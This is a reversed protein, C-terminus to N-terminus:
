MKEVPSIGILALCAAITEASRQAVALRSRRLDGTASLIPNQEYWDHFTSAFQILTHLIPHIAQTHTVLSVKEDLEVITRILSRELLSIEKPHFDVRDIIEAKALVSGARVYAYMVYYLPNHKAQATLLDLDLDFHSNTDRMAFFFRATDSPVQDLFEDLLIYNGRRKSMKLEEGDRLLRVTQTWLPVFGNTGLLHLAAMLRQEQGHHDPGVITIAVDFKRDELKGLQYTIDKLFYTEQNDTSRVLVEDQPLQTKDASLWTAGDKEIVAGIDALRKLTIQNDLSTEPTVVDHHIGLRQLTPQIMEKFIVSQAREGIAQPAAELLGTSGEYDAEFHRTLQDIYPGRYLVASEEETFTQGAAQQIARGLQGIQNGGDNLYYERVVEFGQSAYVRALIDGYYGGWANVLVLPGTPNASIFEINIRKGRGLGSDFLGTREVGDLLKTWVSAQLRLNIFGPGAVSVAEFLESRSLAESLRDAISRPSSRFLKAQTMALNTSYDGFEIDCFSLSDQLVKTHIAPLELISLARAMENSLQTLLHTHM